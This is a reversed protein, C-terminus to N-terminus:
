EQRQRILDVLNVVEVLRANHEPQAQYAHELYAIASKAEGTTRSGSPSWSLSGSSSCLSNESEVDESSTMIRTTSRVTRERNSTEYNPHINCEGIRRLSQAEASLSLKRSIPLRAIRKPGKTRHEFRSTPFLPYSLSCLVIKLLAVAMLFCQSVRPQSRGYTPGSM